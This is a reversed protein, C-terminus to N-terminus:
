WCRLCGAAATRVKVMCTLLWIPMLLALSPLVHWAPKAPGVVGPQQRHAGLVTLVIRIFFAAPALPDFGVVRHVNHSQSTQVRECVDQARWM